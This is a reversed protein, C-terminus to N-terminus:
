CLKKTTKIKKTKILYAIFAFFSITFSYGYFSKIQNYETLNKSTIYIIKFPVGYALIAFVIPLAVRWLIDILKIWGGGNQKKRIIFEKFKGVFILGYSLFIGVAIGGGILIFEKKM